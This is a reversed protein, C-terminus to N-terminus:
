FLGLPPWPGGPLVAGPEAVGLHASLAEAAVRRYDTSAALDRGQFRSEPSLGPWPGVVRGGKLAGGVLLAAGGHGHDTGGWRNEEITRGFETLTMLLVDDARPGLDDFFARISLALDSLRDAMPGEAGGQGVHDDWRSSEVLAVKTGLGAKLLRALEALDRGVPADPYGAGAARVATLSARAAEDQMARFGSWADELLGALRDRRDSARWAGDDGDARALDSLREFTAVPFRGWLAEPAAPGIAVAAFPPTPAPFARGLRNLWGGEGGGGASVRSLADAHSRTEDDSGVAVVFAARRERYFPLLPALRPHLGFFGDLDLAGGPRGPPPVAITPRARRYAPDAFPVVVNLGDLGGKLLLVVLCKGPRAASVAAARAWDPLALRLAGAGALALFERRTLGRGPLSM